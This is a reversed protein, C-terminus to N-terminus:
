AESKPTGISFGNQLMLVEKAWGDPHEIFMDKNVLADLSEPTYRNQNRKQSVYELVGDCFSRCREEETLVLNILGVQVSAEFEPFIRQEILECLRTGWADKQEIFENKLRAITERHDQMRTDVNKCMFQVEAFDEIRVSRDFLKGGAFIVEQVLCQNIIERVKPGPTTELKTFLAESKTYDKKKRAEIEQIVMESYEEVKKLTEAIELKVREIVPSFKALKEDLIGASFTGLIRRIKDRANEADKKYKTLNKIRVNDYNNVGLVILICIAVLALFVNAFDYVDM